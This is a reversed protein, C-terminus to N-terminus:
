AGVEATETERHVTAGIAILDAPHIWEDALVVGGKELITDRLPVAWRHELLAIAAATGPPIADAVYWVDDEDLVHEDELEAAGALAAATMTDPDGTGFGILAGVLAGFQISEDQSLDTAQLTALEGEDDKAVVLLDVLRVVDAEELRKLEELLEGHLTDTKLGVVLMQVPGFPLTQREDARETSM